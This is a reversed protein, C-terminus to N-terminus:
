VRSFEISAWLRFDHTVSICSSSSSSGVSRDLTGVNLMLSSQIKQESAMAPSAFVGNLRLFTTLLTSVISNWSVMKFLAVSLCSSQPLTTPTRIRFAKSKTAASAFYWRLQAWINRLFLSSVTLFVPLGVSLTNSSAKLFSHEKRSSLSSHWYETRSSTSHM